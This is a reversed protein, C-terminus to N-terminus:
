HTHGLLNCYLNQVSNISVKNVLLLGHFRIFMKPMNNVDMITQMILMCHLVHVCLDHMFM